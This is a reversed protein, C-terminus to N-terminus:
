SSRIASHGQGPVVVYGCGRERSAGSNEWCTSGCERSLAEALGSDDNGAIVVLDPAHIGIWRWLAHSESNERYATGTPPFQLRAADPNGIAIAILHFPRQTQPLAEFKRVEDNVVKSTEDNGNLGAVLLVTPAADSRGPVISAEIRTGKQTLGVDRHEAAFSLSSTM